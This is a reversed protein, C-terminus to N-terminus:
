GATHVASLKEGFKLPIFMTLIIRKIIVDTIKGKDM